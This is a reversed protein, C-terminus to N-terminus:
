APQLALCAPSKMLQVQREAPAEVARGPGQGAEQGRRGRKRTERKRVRNTVKRALIGLRM